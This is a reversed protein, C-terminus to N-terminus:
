PGSWSDSSAAHRPYRPPAAIGGLLVSAAPWRSVAQRALAFYVSEVFAVGAVIFATQAQADVVVGIRDAALASLSIVAAGVLPPIGTRVVSGWLDSVGLYEPSRPWGLLAGLFPLRHEAWRILLYYLNQVVAIVFATVAAAAPGTFDLLSHAALWAVAAGIAYPVYTRVYALVRDDANMIITM